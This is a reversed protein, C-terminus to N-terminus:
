LNRQIASEIRAQIVYDLAGKDDLDCICSTIDHAELTKLAIERIQKGFQKLVVSQLNIQITGEPNPSLKVLIDNSELTGAQSTNQIIM